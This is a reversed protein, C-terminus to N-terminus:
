HDHSTAPTPRPAVEQPDAPVTRGERLHDPPETPLEEPHGRAHRTRGRPRQTGRPGPPLRAPRHVGDRQRDPDLLPHRARHLRRPVHRARGPRDVRTHASVHLAYRSHDDLWTIIEVDPGPRGDPRTLRYHTFDSQWCENPQDAEFRTWSSRPRKQPQATVTGHRTLIRHVTARSVVIRHHQQLHWRITDAGADHGSATLQERLRLVLEVTAPPTATPITRPRRSHPEFAAEGERGYRALLEYVWSRSVGYAAAVQGVPRKELVVANIVLRAKSM